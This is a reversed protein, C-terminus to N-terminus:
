QKILQCVTEIHYTHPFMDVPQVTKLHYDTKCLQELDRALTAPNCSVYVIKKANITLLHNCLNEGLGSRPPDVIVIDPHDDRNKILNFTDGAEYYVNPIGNNQANEQANQIANENIDFGFVHKAKHACFLGITGTGCFLDYVIDDKDIDSLKLIHKYLLEAQKTNPQFFADPLINFTLQHKKDIHMEETLCSKGYLNETAFHTRHGKRAVHKQLIISTPKKITKNNVLHDVFEQKYGFPEHSTTLIIMRENTYKSDRVTLTRLLGKNSKFHYASLNKERAFDVISSLLFGIDENQLYCETLDFVDYRYGKPHLGLHLTEYKNMSFSFEMKNRYFWPSECATISKVPPNNFNGLHTLAESVQEEKFRLQDSYDVYQFSCGGCTDFHKCRPQIRLSSPTVIDEKKAEMFSSKIKTIRAQVTDGPVTNEIFVVKGNHHGIGAGEFAIKTVPVTILEGKKLQM